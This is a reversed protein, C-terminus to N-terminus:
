PLMISIPMVSGSRTARDASCFPADTAPSSSVVLVRIASSCVGQPPLAASIVSYPGSSSPRCWGDGSELVGCDSPSPGDTPQPDRGSPQPDPPAALNQPRSPVPPCLGPMGALPAPPRPAPYPLARSLQTESLVASGAAPAASGRPVRAARAPRRRRPPRYRGGAIEGRVEGGPRYRTVRQGPCDHDRLQHPHQHLVQGGLNADRCAAVQRLEA